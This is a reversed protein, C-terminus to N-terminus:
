CWSIWLISKWLLAASILLLTLIQCGPATLAKLFHIIQQPSLLLTSPLRVNPRMGVVLTDERPIQPQIPTKTHPIDTGQRHELGLPTSPAPLTQPSLPAKHTVETLISFFWGADQLYFWLNDLHPTPPFKTSSIGPICDQAQPFGRANDQQGLSLRRCLQPWCPARSLCPPAPHWHSGHILM